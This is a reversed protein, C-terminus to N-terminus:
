KKSGLALMLVLAGLAGLGLGGGFSGLDFGVGRRPGDDGGSIIYTPGGGGAGLGGIMMLMRDNLDNLGSLLGEGAGNGNGKPLDYVIPPPHTLPGWITEGNSPTLMLNVDIIGGEYQSIDTKLVQEGTRNRM